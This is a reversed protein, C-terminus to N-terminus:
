GRCSCGRVGVQSYLQMTSDEDDGGYEKEALIPKVGLRSPGSAAMDVAGPALDAAAAQPYLRFHGPAPQKEVSALLRETSAVIHPFRQRYQEMFDPKCALKKATATLVSYM